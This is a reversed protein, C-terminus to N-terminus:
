VMVASVLILPFHQFCFSSLNNRFSLRSSFSVPFHSQPRTSSQVPCFCHFSATFGSNTPGRHCSFSSIKPLSQSTHHIYSNFDSSFCRCLFLANLGGVPQLTRCRRSPFVNKGPDFGIRREVLRLPPVLRRADQRESLRRRSAVVFSCQSLGECGVQGSGVVSLCRAPPRPLDEVPQTAVCVVAPSRAFTHTHTSHFRRREDGTTSMASLLCPLCKSSDSRKVVSRQRNHQPCCCSRRM